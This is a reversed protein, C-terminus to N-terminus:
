KTPDTVRGMFLISGTDNDRIVFLFPHDAIFEKPREVDVKSLTYSTSTVAAAETGKENVEVFSKHLVKSIFLDGSSIMGSFDAKSCLSDRLGMEGLTHTLEFDNEMNFKPIQVFIKQDRMRNIWTSLNDMTASNELDSIGEKLNPLLVVMSFKRGAYPLELAKFKLNEYYGFNATQHMMEASVSSKQAVHFPMARTQEKEFAKAWAGKFYIVDVLVAANQELEEPKAIMKIKDETREAVWRNIESSALKSETKFDFQKVEANFSKTLQKLFKSQFPLGKQALLANAVNFKVNTKENLQKQLAGFSSHTTTQNTNFHFTKALERETEGRAGAYAMGFCTSISLPSFFINGEKSKLKGYLELAFTNNGKVFDPDITIPKSKIFLSALAIGALVGLITLKKYVRKM